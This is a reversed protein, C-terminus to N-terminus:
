SHSSQELYLSIIEQEIIGKFRVPITVRVVLDLIEPTQFKISVRPSILPIDVQRKKALKKFYNKAPEVHEQCVKTASELLVARNEQWNIDNKIPVVFVHLSYDTNKQAAETENLVKNSLFVSNPVTITRGTYQHTFDKPGVELLQTGLLGIDVVDGRIDDVEIRDGLTFPSAFARYFSGGICLFVEKTTIAIAAGIAAISIIFQYLQTAWLVLILVIITFIFLYKMKAVVRRKQANDMRSNKIAKSIILFLFVIVVVATAFIYLDQLQSLNRLDM